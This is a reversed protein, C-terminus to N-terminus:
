KNLAPTRLAINGLDIPIGKKIIEKAWPHTTEDDAAAFTHLEILPFRTLIHKIPEYDITLCGSFQEDWIALDIDSYEHQQGLAVSGFLYAQTPHYGLDSLDKLLKSIQSLANTRTVM